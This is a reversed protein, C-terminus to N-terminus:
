TTREALGLAAKPVGRAILDDRLWEAHERSDCLVDVTSGIFGPSVTVFRHEPGRARFLAWWNATDRSTYTLLKTENVRVAHQTPGPLATQGQGAPRRTSM